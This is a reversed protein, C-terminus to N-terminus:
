GKLNVGSGRDLTIQFQKGVMLPSHSEFYLTIIQLFRGTGSFQSSRSSLFFANVKERDVPLIWINIFSRALVM